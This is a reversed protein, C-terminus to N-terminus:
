FTSPLESNLSKEPRLRLNEDWKSIQDFVIQYGQANLHCIDTFAELHAMFFDQTDFVEVGSYKLAEILSQRRQLFEQAKKASLHEPNYPQVLFVITNKQKLLLFGQKIKHLIEQFDVEDPKLMVLKKVLKHLFLFERGLPIEALIEQTRKTQRGVFEVNWGDNFGSFFIIRRNQLNQLRALEDLLSQGCVAMNQVEQHLIRGLNQAIMGPSTLGYGYATSGGTFLVTNKQIPPPEKLAHAGLEAWIKKDQPSYAIVGNFVPFFLGYRVYHHLRCFTEALLFLALAWLLAQRMKM